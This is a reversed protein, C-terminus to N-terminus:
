WNDEIEYELELKAGLSFYEETARDQDTKFYVLTDLDLGKGLKIDGFVSTFPVSLILLTILFRSYM